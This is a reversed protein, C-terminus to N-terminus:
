GPRRPLRRAAMPPVATSKLLAEPVWASGPNWRWAPARAQRDFEPSRDGVGPRTLLAMGRGLRRASPLGKKKRGRVPVAVAEPALGRGQGRRIWLRRAELGRLTRLSRSARARSRLVAEQDPRRFVRARQMWRSRGAAQPRLRAARRPTEAFLVRLAGRLVVGAEVWVRMIRHPLRPLVSALTRVELMRLGRAV